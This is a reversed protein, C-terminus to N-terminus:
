QHGEALIKASRNGGEATAARNWMETLLDPYFNKPSIQLNEININVFKKMRIVHSLCLKIFRNKIPTVM